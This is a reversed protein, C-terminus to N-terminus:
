ALGALRRAINGGMLRRISEAQVGMQELHARISIVFSAVGPGGGFKWMSAEAMDTALAVRDDFGAAVMKELLPWANQEPAYKPRFFTDYELMIGSEALTHHLGFDPRKDMHCLVLQRPDVGRELFFGAIGEADAGKETHVEVCVGTEAAAGAAAELASQPTAAVSAECAVKIAGARVPDPLERTEQLGVQIEDVFHKQVDEASADWMWWEAPYYIRRHFGTSVVIAVGSEQSLGRLQRGNRGCGGPQCDVIGHSGMGALSGLEQAIADHDALIFTNNAAGPVAEIWVHSHADVVGLEEPAVAGSVTMVKGEFPM